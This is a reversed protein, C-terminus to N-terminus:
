PSEARLRYDLVAARLLSEDGVISASALREVEAANERVRENESRRFLRRANQAFASVVARQAKSRRMLDAMAYLFASSDRQAYPELPVPPAFPVNAGAITLLLLAIVIFGAARVPAPLAAWFGADEDYGHVYEDFAAPGHGAIVNYAFALNGADNVYANGLLAPATIALVEGRGYAYGVAVIGAENGLLPEGQRETFPFVADIPAAVRSVGGTFRNVVVPVAMRQSAEISRAVGPIADRNGAFSSSLAVLRGGNRVFQRLVTADGKGFASPDAADEAIVLTRVEPQLQSLRREFRSVEVGTQRLVTFLAGYGNRGRDYTSFVSPPSASEAANREFGLVLLILAAAALIAIELRRARM